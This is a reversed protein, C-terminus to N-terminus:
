LTALVRARFEQAAQQAQAVQAAVAVQLATRTEPAEATKVAALVGAQTFTYPAISLRPQGLDECLMATKRTLGINVFPVAALAAFVLGHFKMSLCLQCDSILRAVDLPPLEEAVPHVNGPRRMLGHVQGIFGLDLDKYDHSLPLMVVDYYEVLEDLTRALAFKLYNYYFHDALDGRQLATQDANGSPCFVLRKRSCRQVVPHQPRAQVVDGLLLALDPTYHADVGQARLAEVDAPNRLWIGLLRDKAAVVSAYQEASGLGIGYAFFKAQQPIMDLYYKLFVDGAGLMYVQGDPDGADQVDAIWRKPVGPFLVEHVEKFAEDGANRRGYWGVFALSRTM